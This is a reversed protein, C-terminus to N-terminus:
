CLTSTQITFSGFQITFTDNRIIFLELQITFLAIQSIFRSSNLYLPGTSGLMMLPIAGAKKNVDSMTKQNM